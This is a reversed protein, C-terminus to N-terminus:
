CSNGSDKIVRADKDSAIINLSELHLNRRIYTFLGAELEEKSGRSHSGDRRSGHDGFILVL